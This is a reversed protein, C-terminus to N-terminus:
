WTFPCRERLIRVSYKRWDEMPIWLQSSSELTSLLAAGRWVADGADVGTRLRSVVDPFADPSRYEPPTLMAVRSRIWGSISQFKLGDGVLLISGYMRRKIDSSPCGEISTLILCDLSLSPVSPFSATSSSESAHACSRQAEMPVDLETASDDDKPAGWWRRGTDKLYQADFPDEPESPGETYRVVHKAGTCGFIAPNLAQLGGVICEDGVTFDMFSTRNSPQPFQLQMVREGETDPDATTWDEKIRTLLDAEWPYSGSLDKLPFGSQRQLIHYFGLTMDAGGFGVRLRTSPISIGDEVCSISTKQDGCDVVCASALGAGFTAAVHDQVSSLTSNQILFFSSCGIEALVQVMTRVNRRCFIDPIVLVFRATKPDFKQNPGIIEQIAATWIDRLDAAVSTLSGGPESHLHLDGRSIPFHINFERLATPTLHPIQQGLVM